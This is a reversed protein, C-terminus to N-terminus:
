LRALMGGSVTVRDGIRYSGGDRLQVTQREGNDM